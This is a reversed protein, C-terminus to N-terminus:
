NNLSTTRKLLSNTKMKLRKMNIELTNESKNSKKIKVPSCMSEISLSLDYKTNNLSDKSINEKMKKSQMVQNLNPYSLCIIKESATDNFKNHSLLLSSSYTSFSQFSSNDKILNNASNASNRKSEIKRETVLHSEDFDTKEDNQNQYNKKPTVKYKNSKLLSTSPGIQEISASSTLSTNTSYSCSNPKEDKNSDLEQNAQKGSQTIEEKEIDEIKNSKNMKKGISLKRYVSNNLSNSISQLVNTTPSLVQTKLKTTQDTYINRLDNDKQQFYSILLKEFYFRAFSNSKNL